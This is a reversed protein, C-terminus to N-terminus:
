RQRRLVLLGAGCVLALVPEPIDLPPGGQIGGGVGLWSRGGYRTVGCYLAQTSSTHYELALFAVHARDTTLLGPDYYWYNVGAATADTNYVQTVDYSLCADFMNRAGGGSWCVYAGAAAKVFMNNVWWNTATSDYQTQACNGNVSWLTNNVFQNPAGGAVGGDVQIAPGGIDWILNERIESAGIDLALARSSWGHIQNNSIVFATDKGSNWAVTIGDAAGSASMGPGRIVNDAIRVGTGGGYQNFRIAGAVAGAGAVHMRNGVIQARDILTRVDADERADFNGNVGFVIAPAALVNSIVCHAILMNGGSAPYWRVSAGVNPDYAYSNQNAVAVAAGNSVVFCLNSVTCNYRVGHFQVPPYEASIVPMGNIGAITIDNATTTDRLRQFRSVAGAPGGTNYVYGLAGNTTGGDILISDGNGYAIAQDAEYVTRFATTLSHGDFTHQAAASIYYTRPEAVFLLMSWYELSPLTCTVCARGGITTTTFPVNIPRGAGYDPSVFTVRDVRQSTYYTIVANTVIAPAPYTGNADAWANTTLSTLNILHLIESNRKQRPLCWVRGPQDWTSPTLGTASVERAITIVDRDRLMNQYATAVAYYRRVRAMLASSATKTTNPYYENGLLGHDGVEIHAGGTAFIAADALLVSTTNFAAANRNLYAAFVINKLNGSWSRCHEFMWQFGLYRTAIDTGPWVEVYHFDVSDSVNPAGWENMANFLYRRGLRARAASLFAGYAAAMDIGTGEWSYGNKGLQDVHWGDFAFVQFVKEEESFIWNRWDAHLPNFVKIHPTAWGSPLEHTVQTVHSADNYLGWQPLLGDAYCNSSAGYLLNYNMCMMRRAHAATLYRSVTLFRNDRNAIDPWSAAPSGVTGALPIHHKYNQWDYFQLGNLHYRSLQEITANIEAASLPGYASLYGYRPFVRWDSSVDVATTVPTSTAGGSIASCELLYGTFDRAPPLWTWAATVISAAPMTLNTVSWQALPATLHSVQAAVTCAVATGASNQLVVMGRAAEGPAYRSAETWADAL